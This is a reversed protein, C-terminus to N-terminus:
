FYENLKGETSPRTFMSLIEASAAQPTFDLRAQRYARQTIVQTSGAELILAKIVEALRHSNNQSALWGCQYKQLYHAVFSDPPVHALVPRGSALYEGMKGPASTRIVEPIPAEFALPLFLLDARHQQELIESYPVHAHIFLKESQIQHQALEAVTQATFLHLELPYDSLEDLARLLNRFCDFNAHYIAGTYIIKIRGSENPWRINPTRALESKACPNRVLTPRVGYRQQYEACIFENPGIVGAANKFILPAVLKAFRRYNGTWQFVYDDFLYAYFPLRARRCALFGAPLDLLDGTCAILATTAPESELVTLIQEARKFIRSFLKLLSLLPALFRIFPGSFLTEPALSYTKAPLRLAEPQIQLLSEGRSDILYYLNPDIESLIRYLMVAQGSPSPPLVHSLVAFRPTKM